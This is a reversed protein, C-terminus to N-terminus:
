TDAIKKTVKHMMDLSVPDVSTHTHGIPNSNRFHICTWTFNFPWLKSGDRGAWSPLLLTKQQGFDMKSTVSRERHQVAILITRIQIQTSLHDTVRITGGSLYQIQPMWSSRDKAHMKRM